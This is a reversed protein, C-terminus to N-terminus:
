TVLRIFEIRWVWPNLDWSGEGNISEWLSRFSIVPWGGADGNSGVKYYKWQRVGFKKGICEIGEKIADEATVDNLQEISIKTIELWIRAASKPMHISPKWIHQLNSTNADAKYFYTPKEDINEYHIKSWTERVWIRDAVKGVPCVINKDVRQGNVNTACHVGFYNWPDKPAGKYRFDSTWHKIPQNNLGMPVDYGWIPSIGFTNPNNPQPNVIRRTVTKRGDLIAQVMPTSFLLPTERM